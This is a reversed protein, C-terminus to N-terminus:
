ACSRVRTGRRVYDIRGWGHCAAELTRGDLMKRAVLRPHDMHAAFIWRPLSKGRRSGAPPLEILLNGSDDRSLRLKQRAAAFKEVYRIVFQEAFPATPISCVETLRKM